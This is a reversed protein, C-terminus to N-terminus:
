PVSGDSEGNVAIVMGSDDLTYTLGDADDMADQLYDAETIVWYDTANGDAGIVTISISKGNQTGEVTDSQSKDDKAKDDDKKAENIFYIAAFAVVLALFVAVIIILTKKKM